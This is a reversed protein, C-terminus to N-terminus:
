AASDAVVITPPMLGAGAASDSGVPTRWRMRGASPDLATYADDATAAYLTGRMLSLRLVPSNQGSQGVSTRWRPAGTDASLAGVSGSVGGTYLAGRDTGLMALLTDNSSAQWRIAGDATALAVVDGVTPGAVVYLTSSDSSVLPDLANTVASAALGIPLQKQWLRTGDTARVAVVTEVTGVGIGGTANTSPATAQGALYIMSGAVTPRSLAQIAPDQYSWRLRGDTPDLALLRNDTTGAYLTGGALQLSSIDSGQIGVQWLESGDGGHLATLGGSGDFVTGLAGDVLLTDLGSGVQTHWLLTGDRASVASVVGGAALYLVGRAFQLTSELAGMSGAGLPTQWLLRGDGAQLAYPSGASLYLKGDHLVLSPMSAPLAPVFRWLRRGTAADYAALEDGTLVYAVTLHLRTSVTPSSSSGSRVSGGCAVLACTVALAVFIQFAMRTTRGRRTVGDGRGRMQTLGAGAGVPRAKDARVGVGGARVPEVVRLKTRDLAGGGGSIGM